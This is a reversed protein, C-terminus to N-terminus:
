GPLGDRNRNLAEIDLGGDYDIPQNTNYSPIPYKKLVPRHKVPSVNTSGGKKSDDGPSESEGGELEPMNDAFYLDIKHRLSNDHMHSSQIHKTLSNLSEKLDINSALSSIIKQMLNSGDGKMISKQREEIAEDAKRQKRNNEIQILPLFQKHYDEFIIDKFVRWSSLENIITDIDMLSDIMSSFESQMDCVNKKASKRKRYDFSDSKKLADGFIDMNIMPKDQATGPALNKEDPTHLDKSAPLIDWSGQDRNKPNTQDTKSRNKLSKAMDTLKNSDKILATLSGSPIIKEILYRSMFAHNYFAYVFGIALFLMEKFGGIDSVADVLNPYTRTAENMIGSHRFYIGLYFQCQFTAIALSTCHTGSRQFTTTQEKAIDTFTSNDRTPQLWNTKDVLKNERVFSFITTGVTEQLNLEEILHLGHKIPNDFDSNQLYSKANIAVMMLSALDPGSICDAPNPLSCPYFEINFSKFDPTMRDGYIYMERDPIEICAMNYIISSVKPDDYIFQYPKKNKLQKCQVVPLDVLEYISKQKDYDFYSRLIKVKITTIKELSAFPLVEFTSRNVINFVPIIQSALMDTKATSIDYVSSLSEAPSTRDIVRSVVMSSYWGVVAFVALSLLSGIYTKFTSSGQVTLEVNSGLSDIAKFAKKSKTWVRRIM